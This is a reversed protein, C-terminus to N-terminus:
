YKQLSTIAPQTVKPFGRVSCSIATSYGAVVSRDVLPQTFKPPCAMDKEKFAAQKLELGSTLCFM